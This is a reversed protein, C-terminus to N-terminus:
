RRYCTLPPLAGGPPSTSATALQHVSATILYGVEGAALGPNPAERGNCCGGSRGMGSRRCTTRRVGEHGLRLGGRERHDRRNDQVLPPDWQSTEASLFGYFREFGQGLPCRDM